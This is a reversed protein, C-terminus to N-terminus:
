RVREPPLHLYRPDFDAEDVLAQWDRIEVRGGRVVALREEALARLTRNIHVNTLGVVDGLHAQTAPLTFDDRDEGIIAFRMALECLLHAVRQKASARGINLTWKSLIAADVECDRWFAMAVAPYRAVLARVDDHSVRLITTRTLSQLASSAEPLPASHLDAADGPIHLATIQRAGSATQDFRGALGSVVICCHHTREGLRVFDRNGDYVSFEGPLARIAAIEEATLSSRMRLRAIWPDLADPLIPHSKVPM